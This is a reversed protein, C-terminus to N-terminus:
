FAQDAMVYAGIPRADPSWALDARVLFARGQQLRVGGGIGYHLGIGTGDLQPNAKTIDTWLRGADVFEAFGLTFKRSLATFKMAKERLEVNGFVKARGYFQYAPVGRVGQTGGIASTEEYRSEEYFPVDGTQLDVVGRVGLVIGHPLTTYFRAIADYQEYKYPVADGLRPSVRVKIQHWMGHGPAVENNRTDYSFGTELRIVGHTKTLYPDSAALETQLTSGQDSHIRNLTVQLGDLAYWHPSLRWRSNISVAPHIREYLDRSPVIQSQVPPQNGLGYFPLAEDLTFSPRIELRLHDHLLQPLTLTAAGDIYSPSPPFANKTAYFGSFDLKWVYVSDVGDFDAISGIAGAGFGNDTDGGVLPFLGVERGPREPTDDSGAGLVDARASRMPCLVAVALSLLVPRRVHARM